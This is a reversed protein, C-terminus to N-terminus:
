RNHRQGVFYYLHEFLEPTPWNHTKLVPSIMEPFRREQEDIGKHSREHSCQEWPGAPPAVAYATLHWM